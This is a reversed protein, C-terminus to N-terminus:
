QSPDQQPEAETEEHRSGFVRLGKWKWRSKHEAEEFALEGLVLPRSHFSQYGLDVVAWVVVRSGEWERQAMIPWNEGGSSDWQAREITVRLHAAVTQPDDEPTPEAACVALVCRDALRAVPWTWQLRCNGDPENVWAIGDKEAAALGLKEAPLIEAPIWEALAARYPAFREEARRVLSVDFLDYFTAQQKKEL